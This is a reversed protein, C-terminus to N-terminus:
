AANQQSGHVMPLGRPAWGGTGGAVSRADIGRGALFQAATWSRGGSQCIVYAAHAAAFMGLDVERVM